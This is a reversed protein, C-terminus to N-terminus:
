PEVDFEFVGTIEPFMIKLRWKGATPLTASAIYNGIGTMSHPLAIPAMDHGPMDLALAFDLGPQAPQGGPGIVGFSFVVRREANQTMQGRVDWTSATGRFVLGGREAGPAPAIPGIANLRAESQVFFVMTAFGAILLLFVGGFVMAVIRAQRVAATSAPSPSKTQADPRTM